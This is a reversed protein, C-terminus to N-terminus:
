WGDDELTTTVYHNGKEIPYYFKATTRLNKKSM